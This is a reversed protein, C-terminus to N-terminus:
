RTLLWLVAASNVSDGLTLNTFAVHGCLYVPRRFAGHKDVVGAVFRKGESSRVFGRHVAVTCVRQAVSM